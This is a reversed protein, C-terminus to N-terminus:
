GINTKKADTNCAAFAELEGADAVDWFTADKLIHGDCNREGDLNHGIRERNLNTPYTTVSFTQATGGNLSAIMGAASSTFAVIFETDDAVNGLYGGQLLSQLSTTIFYIGGNSDRYLEVDNYNAGNVNADIHYFVQAANTVPKGNATRLKMIKTVSTPSSVTRMMSDKVRTVTGVTTPIYSTPYPGEELQNFGGYIYSANDGTYSAAGTGDRPIIDHNTTSNTSVVGAVSVRFTSNSGAQIQATEASGTGTPVPSCITGGSLDAHVYIGPGGSTNWLRALTRTGAKLYTSICHVAGAAISVNKYLEHLGNTGDEKIKFLSTANDPGTAQAATPVNIKSRSWGSYDNSATLKNTSAREMLLGLKAGSANHNIRPTNSTSGVIHGSSNTLTGNGPGTFTFGAASLFDALSARETGGAWYNDNIYDAYYNPPNGNLLPLWGPYTPTGGDLMDIDDLKENIDSM